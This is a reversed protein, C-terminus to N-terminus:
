FMKKYFTKKNMSFWFAQFSSIIKLLQKSYWVLQLIGIVVHFFVIECSDNVLICSTAKFHMVKRHWKTKGGTLSSISRLGLTVSDSGTNLKLCLLLFEAVPIFPLQEQLDNPIWKRLYPAPAPLSCAWHTTLGAETKVERHPESGKM